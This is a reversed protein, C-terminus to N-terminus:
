ESHKRHRATIAERLQRIYARGANRAGTEDNRMIAAAMAQFDGLSARKSGATRYQAHLIHLHLAPFLHQLERNAGVALMANYFHRRARAFAGPAEDDDAQSLERVAGALIPRHATATYIRAAVGAILGFLAETVELVEMAEDVGIRRVAVSRHRSAEIMGHAALWQIAERVANRGVGFEKALDAEILRQGPAIEDRELARLLGRSVRHSAGYPADEERKEQQITAVRGM